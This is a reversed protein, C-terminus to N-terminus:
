AVTRQGTAALAGAAALYLSGMVRNLLRSRGRAGLWRGLPVAFAAYTSYVLLSIVGATLSLVLVQPWLPNEPSLFQPVVAMSWYISKPNSLSVLAARTVIRPAGGRSQKVRMEPAAHSWWGRLGLWVLYAVGIWKAATFWEASALMIASLGLSAIFIHIMGALALGLSTMLSKPSQGSLATGVAFATNPGPLFEFATWFLVFGFWTELLM